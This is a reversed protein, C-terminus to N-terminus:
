FSPLQVAAFTTQTIRVLPLGTTAKHIAQVLGAWQPVFDHWVVWGGPRALALANHCDQLVHAYDHAADVFVLDMSSRWQSYDFTETNGRLQTIRSEEPTNHFERGIGEGQFWDTHEINIRDFEAPTLDLTWIHAEPVQAALYHTMDGDFTGIEFVRRAPIGRALIGLDLQEDLRANWEFRGVRHPLCLPALAAVDVPLLDDLRKQPVAAITAEAAYAYPFKVLTRLFRPSRLDHTLATIWAGIQSSRM